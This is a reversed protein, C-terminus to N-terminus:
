VASRGNWGGRGVARRSRIVAFKDCHLDEAGDDATLSTSSYFRQMSQSIMPDGDPILM